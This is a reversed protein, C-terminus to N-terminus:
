GMFAARPILLGKRASTRSAVYITDLRWYRGLDFRGNVSHRSPAGVKQQLSHSLELYSEVVGELEIM